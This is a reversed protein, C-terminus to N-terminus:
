AGPPGQIFLHSHDLAAVADIVQDIPVPQTTVLPAGQARGRLRPPEKRLLARVAHHTDAGTALAKAFREVAAKLSRAEIPGPPTLSLVSPAEVRSSATLHLLRQAEDVHAVE